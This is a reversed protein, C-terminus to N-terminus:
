RSREVWVGTEQLRQLAQEREVDSGRRSAAVIAQLVEDSVGAQKLRIIDNATTLRISRLENGYVVPERDKLFSGESILTRLAPEGVGARKLALLEDVTFAATEISRERVMVEITADEIGAKKLRALSQADLAGAPAPVALESAILLIFWCKMLTMIAEL